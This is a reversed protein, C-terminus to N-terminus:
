LWFLLTKIIEPVNIMFLLGFCSVVINTNELNMNQVKILLAIHHLLLQVSESM